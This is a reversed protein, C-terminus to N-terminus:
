RREDKWRVNFIIAQVELGGHCLAINTLQEMVLQNVYSDSVIEREEHRGTAKGQWSVKCMAWSNVVFQEVYSDTGIM